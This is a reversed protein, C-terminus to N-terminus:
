KNRRERLILNLLQCQIFVIQNKTIRINKLKLEKVNLLCAIVLMVSIIVMIEM